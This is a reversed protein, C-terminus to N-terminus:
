NEEPNNKPDMRSELEAMIEALQDLVVNEHGPVIPPTFRQAVPINTPFTPPDHDDRLMAIVSRQAGLRIIRELRARGAPSLHMEDNVYLLIAQGWRQRTYEDHTDIPDTIRRQLEAEAAMLVVEAYETGGDIYERHFYPLDGDSM